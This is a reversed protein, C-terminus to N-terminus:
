VALIKLFVLLMMCCMCNDNCYFISQKEPYLGNLECTM